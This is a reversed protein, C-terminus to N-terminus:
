FFSEAVGFLSWYRSSRSAGPKSIEGSLLLNQRGTWFEDRSYTWHSVPYEVDSAFSACVKNNHTDPSRSTQLIM